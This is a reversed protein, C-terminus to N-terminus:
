IYSKIKKLDNLTIKQLEPNRLLHHPNYIPLLKYKKFEIIHGRINEFNEKDSTISKYVEEGLTIIIKPKIFDIQSFLYNKCSNVESPSPINSSLAKCKVIHTYYIDKIDLNFSNEVMEKLITGSRSSYYNNNSDQTQSVSFDIIMINANSDGYGFMSQTRSKSLDCLHCNSIELVLNKFTVPKIFHNTENITFTNVYKFGVSKLRYLNQLLILNQYSNL